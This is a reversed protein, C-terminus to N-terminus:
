SLTSRGGGLAGDMVRSGVRVLLEIEVEQVATEFFVVNITVQHATDITITEAYHPERSENAIKTFSYINLPNSDYSITRYRRVHSRRSRLNFYHYSM